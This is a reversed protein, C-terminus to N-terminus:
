KMALNEHISVLISYLNYRIYMNQRALWSHCHRIIKNVITLFFM